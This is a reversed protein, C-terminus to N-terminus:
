QEASDAVLAAYEVEMAKLASDRWADAVLESMPDPFIEDEGAALGDFIRAAVVEPAAKPIDFAKTMDTDVVGIMAAHVRVGRNALYARLGQTLSFAAAKSVSYSPLLPMNAWSSTSLINLVAGRAATLAPLMDQTVAFSGFVNVAFHQQLLSPDTLDDDWLALGANNVLLDLSDVADAAARIQDADTIDLTLPVVRDDSYDLPQRTGAFVRAAGRALAEHALARGIGRNAGTVLVTKGSMTSM